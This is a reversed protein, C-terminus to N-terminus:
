KEFIDDGECLKKIKKRARHIIIKVQPISKQMVKSIENYTMENIALLYLATKYDDPLSDLHKFITNMRETQIVSNEPTINTSIETIDNINVTRRNKNKRLYDICTNRIVTFLYTKFTHSPKYETRHIYIKVFCEQIIDEAEYLDCIFSYAFNIAMARYKIVLTEYASKDGNKVKEM